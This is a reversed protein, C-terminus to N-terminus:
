VVLLYASTCFHMYMSRFHTYLSLSYCSTFTNHKSIFLFVITYLYVM